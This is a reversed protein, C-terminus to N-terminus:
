ARKEPPMLVVCSGALRDHLFQRDPDFVAWLVGGGFCFLSPWALAYRLAARPGTLLRGDRANVVKLRWTQMALTAGHRRWYYVFYAGLVVFLQLWLVWGAFTVGLSWGILLNPVIFALALVGLLLLSEYLMSALRRRLGAFEVLPRDPEPLPSSRPKKKM